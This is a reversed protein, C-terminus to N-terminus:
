AISADYNDPDLNNSGTVDSLDWGLYRFAGRFYAYNAAMRSLAHGTTYNPNIQNQGWVIINNGKPYSTAMAVHGASSPGSWIIWDGPRLAEWSTILGFEGASNNTRMDWIGTANDVSQIPRGVQGLWYANIYDYCQAGFEKDVDIYSNIPYQRQFDALTKWTSRGHIIESYKPAWPNYVEESGTGLILKFKYDSVFCMDNDHAIYTVATGATSKASHEEGCVRVIAAGRKNNETSINKANSAALNAVSNM